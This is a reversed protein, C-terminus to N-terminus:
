KVCVNKNKEIEAYSFKKNQKEGGAAHVVLM